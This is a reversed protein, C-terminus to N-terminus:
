DASALQTGRNEWDDIAAATAQFTHWDEPAIINDKLVLRRNFVLTRGKQVMSATYELWPNAWHAAPTPAITFGVPLEITVQTELWRPGDLMATYRRDTRWSEPISRGVNASPSLRWHSPDLRTLRM